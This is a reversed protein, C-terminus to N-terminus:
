FDEEIIEIQGQNSSMASSHKHEIYLITANPLNKRLLQIADNRSETDMKAFAEDLFIAEPKPDKIFCRIIAIKLKQGSSLCGEEGWDKVDHTTLTDIAEIFKLESLLQKALEVQEPTAEEMSPFLITQMLSYSKGKLIYVSSPLFLHNTPMEVNGFGITPNIGGKLLEFLFTKGAGNPGTLRYVKGFELRKQIVIKGTKDKTPYQLNITVTNHPTFKPRDYYNYTIKCEEIAKQHQDIAQLTAQLDKTSQELSKVVDLKASTWFGSFDGIHRFNKGASVADAPNLSGTLPQTIIGLVESYEWLIKNFFSVWAQPNLSALDITQIKDLAKQCEKIAFDEGDMLAMAEIQSLSNTAQNKFIESAIKKEDSNEKLGANAWSSFLSYIYGYSLSILILYPISISFGLLAIEFFGSILYLSYLAGIFHSLISIRDNSLSILDLCFKDTKNIINDEPNLVKQDTKTIGIYTKTAIWNSLFYSRMLYSLKERLGKCSTANISHIIPILCKSLLLIFLPYRYLEFAYPNKFALELLLSLANQQIPILIGLLVSSGFMKVAMATTQNIGLYPYLLETAKAIEPCFIWSVSREFIPKAVNNLLYESNTKRSSPIATVPNDAKAPRDTSVKTNSHDTIKKM